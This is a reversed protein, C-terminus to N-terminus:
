CSLKVMIDSDNIDKQQTIKHIELYIRDSRLEYDLVGIESLIDLSIRFTFYNIESESEQNLYVIFDGIRYGFAKLLTLKKYIFAIYARDIRFPSVRQPTKAFVCHPMTQYYNADYDFYYPHDAVYASVQLDDAHGVGIPNVWLVYKANTQHWENYITEIDIGQMAAFRLCRDLMDKTYVICIWPNTQLMVDEPEMDSHDTVFFQPVEHGFYYTFYQYLSEFYRNFNWLHVAIDKLELQVSSRGNFTNISTTFLIDYSERSLNFSDLEQAMSFGIADFNSAKHVVNCKFHEGNKGVTQVNRLFVEEMRYVPRSNKIGFPAFMETERVAKESIQSSVAQLDYYRMPCFCSRIKTDSYYDNVQACIEEFKEARATFGAAQSHGGFKLYLSSAASLMEYIDILPISRASAKVLGEKESGVIFPHHYKECLKGAVIGIIGEHADSLKLFIIANQDLIDSEAMISECQTTLTDEIDKREENARELFEAMQKRQNADDCVFLNFADYPSYLRGAATIRPVILFAVNGSNLATRNLRASAILEDFGPCGSERLYRLALSALTRNEGTMPVLDAITAIGAFVLLERMLTMDANVGETLACALKYAVGAGCLEGFPYRESESKPDLIAFANPLQSPPRHHDTLIVDINWDQLYAIEDVATIGTDVTILLTIGNQQLTSVRELNMGYGDDFRNPLFCFIDAGFWNLIRYLIVASCIGDCDYDGYVAIKEKNQIASRIRQMAREMDRFFYPNHLHVESPFLYEEVQGLTSFGKQLLLAASLESVGFQESIMSQFAENTIVARQKIIKYQM